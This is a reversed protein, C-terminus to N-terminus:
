DFHATKKFQGRQTLRERMARMHEANRGPRLKRPKLVAAIEELRSVPFRLVEAGNIDWQWHRGDEIKQAARTAGVSVYALIELGNYPYILGNNCVVEVFAADDDTRAQCGDEYRWRYRHAKAWPRLDVAKM